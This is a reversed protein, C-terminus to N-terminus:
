WPVGHQLAKTNGGKVGNGLPGWALTFQLGFWEQKILLWLWALRARQSVRVFLSIRTHVSVFGEQFTLCCLRAGEAPFRLVNPSCSKADESTLGDGLSECPRLQFRSSSFPGCPFSADSAPLLLNPLFSFGGQGHAM